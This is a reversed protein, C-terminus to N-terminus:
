LKRYLKTVEIVGEVSTNDSLLMTVFYKGSITPTGRLYGDEYYNIGTPLGQMGVVSVDYIQMLCEFYAEKQMVLRFRQLGGNGGSGAGNVGQPPKSDEVLVSVSKFNEGNLDYSEKKDGYVNMFLDEFLLLNEMLKRKAKVTVAFKELESIEVRYDDNKDHVVVTTPLWTLKVKVKVKASQYYFKGPSIDIDYDRAQKAIAYGDKKVIVTIGYKTASCNAKGDNYAM